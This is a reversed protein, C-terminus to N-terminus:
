NLEYISMWRLFKILEKTINWFHFDESTLSSNLYIICSGNPNMPDFFFSVLIYQLIYKINTSNMAKLAKVSNTPCWNSWGAQLFLSSTNTHNDTQLLTCITQMHDLQHWQWGLVGDDKAENTSDLTTKGKRYRSYNWKKLTKQWGHLWILSTNHTMGPLRGSVFIDSCCWCGPLLRDPCEWLYSTAPVSWQSLAKILRNVASQSCDVRDVLLRWQM